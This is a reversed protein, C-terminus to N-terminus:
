FSVFPPVTSNDPFIQGFHQIEPYDDTISNSLYLTFPFILPLKLLFTKWFIQVLYMRFLTLLFIILGTLKNFEFKSIIVDNTLEIFHSILLFWSYHELLPENYTRKKGSHFPSNPICGEQVGLHIYKALILSIQFILFLNCCLLLAKYLAKNGIKLKNQDDNKPRRLTDKSFWEQYKNGMFPYLVYFLSYKISQYTYAVPLVFPFLFFYFIGSLYGTSKQLGQSNDM